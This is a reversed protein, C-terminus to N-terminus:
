ALTSPYHPGRECFVLLMTMLVSTWEDAGVMLMAVVVIVLMTKMLTMTTM